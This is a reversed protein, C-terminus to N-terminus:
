SLGAPNIEALRCRMAPREREAAHHLSRWVRAQASDDVPEAAQRGAGTELEARVRGTHWDHPKWVDVDRGALIRQLRRQNSRLQKGPSKLKRFM